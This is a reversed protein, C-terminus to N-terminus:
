EDSRDTLDDDDFLGESIPEDKLLGTLRTDGIKVGLGAEPLREIAVMRGNPLGKVTFAIGFDDREFGAFQVFYYGDIRGFAPVQGSRRRYHRQIAGRVIQHQKDSALSNIDEPLAIIRLQEATLLAVVFVPSPVRRETRVQLHPRFRARYIEERAVLDAKREADIQRATASLVESLFLQDVELTDALTSSHLGPPVVGTTLIDSLVTHGKALRDEFGFREVVQRRTLGLDNARSVILRSISFFDEHFRAHFTAM